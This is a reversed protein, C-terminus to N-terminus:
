PKVLSSTLHSSDNLKVPSVSGRWAASIALIRASRGGSEKHDFLERIRLWCLCHGPRGHNTMDETKDFILPELEVLDDIDDIFYVTMDFPIGFAGVRAIDTTTRMHM